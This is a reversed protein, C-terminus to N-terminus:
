DFTARGWIPRATWGAKLEPDEVLTLLESVDHVNVVLLYSYNFHKTVFGTLVQM